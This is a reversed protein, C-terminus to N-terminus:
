GELAKREQDLDRNLAAVDSYKDGYRAQLKRINSELIDAMEIGLTMALGHITRFLTESREQISLPFYSPAHTYHAFYVDILESVMVNISLLQRVAPREFGKPMVKLSEFKGGATVVLLNLGWLADGLEEKINTLDLPKGYIFHAKISTAVEGIESVLLMLAHEITEQPPLPKNTRLALESYTRLEM